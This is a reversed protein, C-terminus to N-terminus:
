GCLGLGRRLADVKAATFRRSVEADGVFVDFGHFAGPVVLLETAVGAALLGKAYAIDEEVFLDLAGVGIWAPPLGSLDGRRSPVAAEPVGEGGPPMGLFSEWGFRNAEGNWGFYGIHEPLPRSTGARDDLMPYVLAQFCPMVGGRDRAAFALLAAHGGGASEGMVAIRAPDVGIGDANAAMWVLASYNDELSARWTTEPALRYDVSVIPVDLTAALNQVIPLSNGATSTTFGGGHIHLVGPGAAGPRANVVYVGIEGPDGPCNLREVRVLEFPVDDLPPSGASQTWERRKALKDLTMPTFGATMERMMLAAERLEPDVLDLFEPKYDVM